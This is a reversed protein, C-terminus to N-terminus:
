PMSPQDMWWPHACSSGLPPMLTTPSPEVRRAQRALEPAPGGGAAAACAAVQQGAQTRVGCCSHCPICRAPCRCPSPRQQAQPRMARRRPSSRTRHAPARPGPPSCPTCALQAAGQPVTHQQHWGSKRSLASEHARGRGQGGRAALAELDLAVGGVQVIAISDGDVAAISGATVGILAKNHADHICTPAACFPAPPPCPRAHHRRRRYICWKSSCQWESPGQIVLM